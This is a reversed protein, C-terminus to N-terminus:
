DYSKHTLCVKMGHKDLIEKQTEAPIDGISAIEVDKVGMMELRALTKDFDEANQIHDRLTFLQIATTPKKM